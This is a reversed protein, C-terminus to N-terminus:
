YDSRVPNMYYPKVTSELGNAAQANLEAIYQDVLLVGKQRWFNGRETEDFYDLYEAAALYIWAEPIEFTTIDSSAINDTLDNPWVEGVIGINGSVPVPLIRIKTGLELYHRPVGQVSFDPYIRRAAEYDYLKALTKKEHEVFKASKLRQAEIDIEGNVVPVNQLYSLFRTIERDRIIARRATNMFFLALNRDVDQRAIIKVIKDLMEKANMM